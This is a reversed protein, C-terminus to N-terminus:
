FVCGINEMRRIYNYIDIFAEGVISSTFMVTCVSVAVKAAGTVSSITPVAIVQVTCTFNFAKMSNCNYGVMVSISSHEVLLPPQSCSQSLM